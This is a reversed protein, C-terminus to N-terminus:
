VYMSVCNFPVLCGFSLYYLLLRRPVLNSRLWFRDIAAQVGAVFYKFPADHRDLKVVGVAPFGFDIDLDGLVPGM